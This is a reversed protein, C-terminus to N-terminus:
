ILPPLPPLSYKVKVFQDLGCSWVDGTSPVYCLANIVEIHVSPIYQIRKLLSCSVRAISDGITMWVTDTTPHYIMKRIFRQKPSIELGEGVDLLSERGPM